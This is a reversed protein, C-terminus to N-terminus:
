IQAMELFDPGDKGKLREAVQNSAYLLQLLMMVAKQMWCKYDEADAQDVQAETLQMGKKLYESSLAAAAMPESRASFTKVINPGLAALVEHAQSALKQYKQNLMEAQQQDKPM